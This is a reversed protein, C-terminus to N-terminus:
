ESAIVGARADLARRIGESISVSPAYDFARDARDISAVSRDIDAPRPDGFEISVPRDAASSVIDALERISTEEGTGINYVSGDMPADLARRMAAVVDSVHVFDRTQSGDGHVTIAAGDLARDVFIGVAGGSRGSPRAGYVNFLRLAITPVDYRLAYHEVYREALRKSLGYPRMPRTTMTEDVPVQDPQGYVAASSAFVVRSGAQRAAELVTLTGTVNDEHVSLPRDISAAADIDAALHFATDVDDFATELTTMDAVDGEVFHVDAPLHDRRGASLDDIVVVENEDLLDAALRSGIFGAGGTVLVREDSPPVTM